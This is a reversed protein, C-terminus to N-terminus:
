NVPAKDGAALSVGHRLVGVKVLAGDGLAVGKPGLLSAQDVPVGLRLLNALVVVWRKGFPENAAGGVQAVVGDIAVQGLATRLVRQHSDRGFGVGLAGVAVGFQVSFHLAHGGAQQRQADLLAIAYEDVHGHNGLGRKGHQGTRANTGNMRHHKTAKRRRRQGRANFVGLRHHYHTGICARTAAFHHGVLRQQVFGDGQRRVLRLRHQHDVTAQCRGGHLGPAVVVPGGQALLVQVGVHGAHPHFGGLGAVGEVGAAGGAFGFAHLAVRAAVGHRQRGAHLVDELGLRTVGIEAGAVNTPHHAVAVDNVARQNTAHGGDHVFAQGDAGVRANPPADHLLVLDRVHERRGRGHAHQFLLVGLVQFFVVQLAEFGQPQSALRQVFGRRLPDAVRQLHGDDVVVPLGFGAPRDHRQAVAHLLLGRAKAARTLRHIAVVDFENVFGRAFFEGRGVLFAHQGNFARQGGAAQM